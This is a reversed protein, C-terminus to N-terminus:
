STRLTSKEIRTNRKAEYAWIRISYEARQKM